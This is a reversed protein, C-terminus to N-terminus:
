SFYLNGERIIHLQICGDDGINTVFGKFKPDAPYEAPKWRFTPPQSYIEPPITNEKLPSKIKEDEVDCEVLKEKLAEEIIEASRESITETPKGSKENDSKEPECGESM